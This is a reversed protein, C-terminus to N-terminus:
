NKESKSKSEYALYLLFLSIDNAKAEAIQIPRLRVIWDTLTKRM